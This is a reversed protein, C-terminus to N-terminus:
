VHPGHLKMEEASVLSGFVMPVNLGDRDIDVKIQLHDIYMNIQDGHM